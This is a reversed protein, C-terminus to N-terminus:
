RRPTYADYAALDVDADPWRRRLVEALRRVWGTLHRLAGHSEAVAAASELAAIRNLRSHDGPPRSDLVPFRHLREIAFAMCAAALGFGFLRDDAAQPVTRSLASRYEFELGTTMPDSVTIWMPGPAYLCVADTLAHRYGAFEFDILRGDGNEVLFNNAGADGNSFSLFPGPDAIEAVVAALETEVHGSPAVGLAETYGRTETWGSGMFREREAQPDVPGLARRRAYYTEEHGVTGASLEGLARAFASLGIKTKEPDGGLLVSALPVRPALDELVLINAGIDSALLRPAIHLGLDALFELAAKETLVQQPDTRSGNPDERLGKVIVSAPLRSSSEAFHCRVVFWPTIRKSRMVHVSVGFRDALLTELAREDLKM